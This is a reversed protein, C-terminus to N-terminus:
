NAPVQINKLKQQYDALLSSLETLHKVCDAQQELNKVNDCSSISDKMEVLAGDGNKFNKLNNNTKLWGISTVLVAIALVSTSIVLGVFIKKQKQENM